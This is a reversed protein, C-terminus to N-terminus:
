RRTGSNIGNIFQAGTRFPNEDPDHEDAWREEPTRKDRVTHVIAVTIGVVAALVGVGFVAWLMVAFVNM